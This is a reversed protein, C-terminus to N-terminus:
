LPAAAIPRPSHTYIVIRPVSLDRAACLARIEFELLGTAILRILFYSSM